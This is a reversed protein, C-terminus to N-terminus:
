NPNWIVGDIATWKYCGRKTKSLNLYLTDHETDVRNVTGTKVKGSFLLISVKDGIKIKVHGGLDIRDKKEIPAPQALPHTATSDAKKEPAKEEKKPPKIKWEVGELAAIKFSGWNNNKMIIRIKIDDGKIDFLNGSLETKSRFLLTLNQGRNFSASRFLDYRYAPIIPDQPGDDAHISVTTLLLLAIFFFKRM